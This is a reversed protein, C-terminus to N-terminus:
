DNLMYATRTYIDLDKRNGYDPSSFGRSQLCPDWKRQIHRVVNGKAVRIVELEEWLPLTNLMSKFQSTKGNLLM